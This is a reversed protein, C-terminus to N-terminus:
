PFPYCEKEIYVALQLFPAMSFHFFAFALYSNIRSILITIFGNAADACPRRKQRNSCIFGGQSHPKILRM